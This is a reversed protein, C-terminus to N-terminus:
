FQANYGQPAEPSANVPSSVNSLPSGYYPARPRTSYIDYIPTGQTNDPLLGRQPRNTEPYRPSGLSLGAQQLALKLREIQGDFRLGVYAEKPSLAKIEVANIAANSNLSRQIRSWQSFDSFQIRAEIFGAGMDQPRVGTKRKWDERLVAKVKSAALQLLRAQPQSTLAPQQIQQVFEPRNRDTRFIEIGISGDPQEKAITVVAEGANYRRLMAALNRPNYTLAQDDAIDRVDSIDGVPVVIPVLGSLNQNTKWANFWPNSPTWLVTHNGTQFFPLILTPASQVDTIANGSSKQGSSAGAFFRKVDRDKFRFKYTGIYRKSALQENSVEFDQIMRSIMSPGPAQFSQLAGDTLMRTALEEFAKGQAEEFAKERAKIANEAKVDVKINEITFLSGAAYLSTSWSVSLLLLTALAIYTQIRM